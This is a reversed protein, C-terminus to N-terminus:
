PKREASCMQALDMLMKDRREGSEAVRNLVWGTGALFLVNMVVLALVLPQQKLGDIVGSAVAGM